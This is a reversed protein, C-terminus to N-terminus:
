KKFRRKTAGAKKEEPKRVPVASEFRRLLETAFNEDFPLSGKYWDPKLDTENGAFAAFRRTWLNDAEFALAFPLHKSYLSKIKQTANRMATLLTDSQDTLYIRYGEMNELVSKGLMSPSKLLSYFVSICVITLFLMVAATVTTEIAYYYLLFYEAIVFPAATICALLLSLWAKKLSFSKSETYIVQGAFYLPVFLIVAGAATLFTTKGFLSLASIFVVSVAAMLIGFWFYSQHMTIFKRGYEKKLKGDVDKVLRSIQLANGQNLEFATANKPFLARAIRKEVVSLDKDKDTTKILVPTGGETESFALFGKAAMSTLVIFLAKAGAKKTLAYYLVAPSFDGKQTPKIQESTGVQNKKLSLWTAIYYSLIFLFAIVSAATTGHENIFRDLTSTTKLADAQQADQWNAVITLGEGEALPYSLAFSLNNEADQKIKFNNTPNFINGTAASQSLIKSGKPFILVAAARTIPVDWHEGTASWILEKFAEEGTGANFDAIKDPMLYNLMFLHNGPALPTDSELTVRIGFLSPRIKVEAPRGDIMAELVTPRTRFTKGTRDSQYKSFYRNIGYVPKVTNEEVIRQITETVGISGDGYTEVRSFFYPIHDLFPVEVIADPPVSVITKPGDFDLGMLRPGAPTQPTQQATTEQRMKPNVFKKQFDQKANKKRDHERRFLRAKAKDLTKQVFDPRSKGEKKMKRPDNESGFFILTGTGPYLEDLTPGREENAKKDKFSGMIGNLDDSLNGEDALAPFSFALIALLVAPIFAPNKKMTM